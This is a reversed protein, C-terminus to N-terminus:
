LKACDEHTNQNVIEHVLLVVVLSPLLLTQVHRDAVDAGFDGLFQGISLCLVHIIRFIQSFLQCLHGYLVIDLLFLFVSQEFDDAFHFIVDFYQEFATAIEELDTVQHGLKAFVQVM